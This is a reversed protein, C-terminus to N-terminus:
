GLNHENRSCMRLLRRHAPHLTVSMESLLLSVHFTADSARPGPRWSTVEWNHSRRLISSGQPETIGSVPAGGGLAM